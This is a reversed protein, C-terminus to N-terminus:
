NAGEPGGGPPKRRCTFVMTAEYKGAGNPPTEDLFLERSCGDQERAIRSEIIAGLNRKAEVRSNFSLTAVCSASRCEVDAVEFGSGKGLHALGEGIVGEADRAWGRDVSERAHNALLEDHGTRLRDLEQAPTEPPVSSGQSAGELADLRKELGRMHTAAGVRASELANVRATTDDGGAPVLQVGAPPTEVAVAPPAAPANGNGGMRSLILSSGVGAVIGLVTPMATRLFGM